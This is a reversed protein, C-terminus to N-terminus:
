FNWGNAAGHMNTNMNGYQTANFASPWIGAECVFGQMPSSNQDNFVGVFSTVSQSGANGTTASGDVVLASSAGNGVGIFAHPSGDTETAALATGFNVNASNTTAHAIRSATGSANGVTIVREINTSVAFNVLAVLTAPAALTLNAASYLGINSPAVNEGMCPWGNLFAGSWPLQQAVVAQTVDCATSGACANAGSQDYWTVVTCTTANCFTTPTSTDCLGSALSNIDTQTSDSARVIRYAKTGVKAASYARCSFFAVAGSVIDGPGAYAGGSTVFKTPPWAPIQGVQALAACTLLLYGLASIVWRIM